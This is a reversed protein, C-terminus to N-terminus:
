KRNAKARGPPHGRWARRFNGLHLNLALSVDEAPRGRLRRWLLQLALVSTEAMLNSVRQWRNLCYGQFRFWAEAQVRLKELDTWRRRASEGDHHMVVAEPEFLLRWGARTMRLCWENDEGYMHFREDFGGIEDIMARRVLLAAGGLMGVARRRDHRWHPGLLLEGSFRRPLLRFLKLGSLLTAWATPPNRWASVQLSGDPNLLRPGCAGVRDEAELAASLRDCAGPRLEADPNLLFLLPARTLAFAQNNAAGFGPNESNEILRLPIHGLQARLEASRLWDRSGDTSANDVIVIEFRVQPPFRLISGVARRLCDGGNWNVIVFALEPPTSDDRDPARAPPSAQVMRAVMHAAAAFLLTGRFATLSARPQPYHEGARFRRESKREDSIM